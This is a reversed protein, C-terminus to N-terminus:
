VGERAASSFPWLTRYKVRAKCGEKEKNRTEKGEKLRREKDRRMRIGKM